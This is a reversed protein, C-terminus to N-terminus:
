RDEMVQGEVIRYTKNNVTFTGTYDFDVKGKKVYWNGLENGAIGNYHFDVEGDRVFFWGNDNKAVGTYDEAKKGDVFASWVDNGDKEVSLDTVPYVPEIDAYKDSTGANYPLNLEEFSSTAIKTTTIAADPDVTEKSKHLNSMLVAVLLAIALLYILATIVKAKTSMKKQESM